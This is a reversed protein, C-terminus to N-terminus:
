ARKPRGAATLEDDSDGAVAAVAAQVRTASGGARKVGAAASSSSSSSSSFLEGAQGAAAVAAKHRGKHTADEAAVKAVQQNDVRACDAIAYVICSLGVPQTDGQRPADGRRRVCGQVRLPGQHDHGDRRVLLPLPPFLPLCPYRVVSSWSCSAGGMTLVRKMQHAQNVIRMETIMNGLSHNTISARGDRAYVWDRAAQRSCFLLVNRSQLAIPLALLTTTPPVYRDAPTASKASM